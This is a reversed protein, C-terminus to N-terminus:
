LPRPSAQVPHVLLRSAAVMWLGLVDLLPAAFGTSAALVLRSNGKCCQGINNKWDEASGSVGFLNTEQESTQLVVREKLNGYTGDPLM